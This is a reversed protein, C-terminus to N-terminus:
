VCITSVWTLNVLFDTAKGEEAFRMLYLATGLSSVFYTSTLTWGWNTLYALWFSPYTYSSISVGLMSLVWTLLFLKVTITIYHPKPSFTKPVDICPTSDTESLLNGSRSPETRDFMSSKLEQRANALGTQVYNMISFRNSV